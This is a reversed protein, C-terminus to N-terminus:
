TRWSRFTFLSTACSITKHWWCLAAAAWFFLPWSSWIKNLVKREHPIYAVALFIASMVLATFAVIELCLVIQIM